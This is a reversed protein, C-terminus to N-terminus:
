GNKIKTALAVAANVLFTQVRNEITTAIQAKTRSGSFVSTRIADIMPTGVTNDSRYLKVETYIALLVLTEEEDFSAGRKEQKLTNQFVEKALRATADAAWAAEEADRAAEEAATFPVPVGNVNKTRAM